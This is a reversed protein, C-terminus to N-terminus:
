VLTNSTYYTTNISPTWTFTWWTNYFMQYFADTANTGTWTSPMRYPTQYEWTQTSSMKISTCYRFMQYYCSNQFTTVPLEPLTSLSSCYYFMQQYCHATITTAPLKPTTKLANRISADETSSRYFLRYFAYSWSITDTGNKNILFTIDWSANLSGSLYFRYYSSPGTSFRTATESTNRFYVKDGINSLTITDWITYTTRTNGDTSTELTVSTPSGNKALRVTSNADNATFCLYDPLAPRIQKEVWWPRMMIRKVEKQVLTM